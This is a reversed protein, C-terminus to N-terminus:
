NCTNLLIEIESKLVKKSRYTSKGEKKSSFDYIWFNADEKTNSLLEILLEKSLKNKSYKKKM